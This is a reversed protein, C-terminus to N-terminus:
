LPQIRLFLTVGTPSPGYLSHLSAPVGYFTVQGGLATALHPILDIDHGYGVTYAQVRALFHETFGRPVPNEGLLLENTRDINEVRGWVYNRKLLHLTSEALYSNFVEGESQIRNRGWLLTSAWNGNRLPRNYMLSATM